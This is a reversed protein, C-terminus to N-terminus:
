NGHPVFVCDVVFPRGDKAIELDGETSSLHSLPLYADGLNSSSLNFGMWWGHFFSFTTVCVDTVGSSDPSLTLPVM